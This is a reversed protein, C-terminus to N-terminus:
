SLHSRVKSHCRERTSIGLRLTPPASSSSTPHPPHPPPLIRTPPFPPFPAISTPLVRVRCGFAHGNAENLAVTTDGGAYVRTIGMGSLGQVPMMSSCGRKHGQGLQGQRNDGCALVGGGLVLLVTHRRGCAVSVALADPGTIPVRSAHPTSKVPGLGLQGYANNGCAILQGPSLDRSLKLKWYLTSNKGHEIELSCPFAEIRQPGRAHFISQDATLHLM